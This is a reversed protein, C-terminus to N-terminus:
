VRYSYWEAFKGLQHRESVHFKARKSHKAVHVFLVESGGKERGYTGSPMDKEKQILTIEENPNRLM